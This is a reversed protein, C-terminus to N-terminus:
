ALGVIVHIVDEPIRPFIVDRDAGIVAVVVLGGLNFRKAVQLFLSLNGWALVLFNRIVIWLGFASKASAYVRLM